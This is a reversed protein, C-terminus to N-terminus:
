VRRRSHGSAINDDDAAEREDCVLSMAARRVEARNTASVRDVLCRQRRSRPRDGRIKPVCAGLLHRQGRRPVAKRPYAILAADASPSMMSM